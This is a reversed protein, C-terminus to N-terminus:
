NGFRRRYEDRLIQSEMVEREYDPQGAARAAAVNCREYTDVDTIGGDANM